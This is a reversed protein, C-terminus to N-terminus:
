GQEGAAANREIGIEQGSGVSLAIGRSLIGSKRRM